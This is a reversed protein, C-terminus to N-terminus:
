RRGHSFEVHPARAGLAAVRFWSVTAQVECAEGLCADHLLFAPAVVRQGLLFYALPNTEM